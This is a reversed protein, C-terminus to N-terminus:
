SKGQDVIELLVKTYGYKPVWSYQKRFNADDIILSHALKNFTKSQGVLKTVLSLLPVPFPLLLVNVKLASGIARILEPLSLSADTVFYRGPKIEACSVITEIADALNNVSILSRKNKVSALPLPIRTAIIRFLRVLNGKQGAGYVLPPRLSVFNVGSDELTRAITEEAELKSKGYLDQPRPTSEDTLPVPDGRSDLSSEEGVAKVSSLYILLKVNAHLSARAIKEASGVNVRLFDTVDAFDSSEHAVGVTHIVAECGLLADCLQELQDCAVVDLSIKLVSDLADPDRSIAVVDHGTQTLYKCVASGVLGSAGTVAVRM